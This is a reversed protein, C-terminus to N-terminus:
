TNKYKYSEDPVAASKYEPSRLKILDKKPRFSHDYVIIIAERAIGPFQPLVPTVAPPVKSVDKDDKVETLNVRSQKRRPELPQLSAM